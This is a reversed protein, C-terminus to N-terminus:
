TQGVAKRFALMEARLVLFLGNIPYDTPYWNPNLCEQETHTGYALHKRAEGILALLQLRVYDGSGFCCDQM